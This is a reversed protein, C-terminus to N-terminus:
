ISKLHGKRGDIFKIIYIMRVPAWFFMKIGFPVSEINLVKQLLPFDTRAAAAANPKCWTVRPKKTLDGVLSYTPLPLFDLTRM